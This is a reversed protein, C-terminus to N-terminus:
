LAAQGVRRAGRPLRRGWLVLMAVSVLAIPALVLCTRAHGIADISYGALLPGFLQTSWAYVTYHSFNRALEGPRSLVGVLTQTLVIVFTSWIGCLACAAYLAPMGPFFYPLTIGLGGCCAAAALLWRAGFRDQLVGAAYSLLLPFLQMATALLGVAFPSAGLELAYLVFLVRAGVIAVFPIAMALHVFVLLNVGPM